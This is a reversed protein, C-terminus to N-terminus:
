RAELWEEFEFFCDSCLRGELASEGDAADEILFRQHRRQDPDLETGCRDCHEVM